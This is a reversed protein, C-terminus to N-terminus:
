GNIAGKSINILSDVHPIGFADECKHCRYCQSNCNKLVDILAVKEKSIIVKRAFSNEGTSGSIDGMSFSYIISDKDAAMAELSSFHVNEIDGETEIGFTANDGYSSYRGSFKLVDIYSFIYDIDKAGKVLLNIGTRPTDSYMGNRWKDCSLSSTTEFYGIEETFSTNMADHESKFPCDPLCGESALMYTKIGREKAVDSIHPLEKWNRALSRDIQVYNYGSENYEICEQATSVKHNVTNKWKMEPFSQQLVGSTMLHVNSITCVRLGRKYFSGIFSVFARLVNRNNILESPHSMQNMTLSIPIGTLEQINFLYDIQEDSAYVEMTNGYRINISDDSYSFLAGFYIDDIEDLFKGDARSLALYFERGKYGREAHGISLRNKYKSNIKESFVEKIIGNTLYDINDDFSKKNFLRQIYQLSSESAAVYKAEPFFLEVDINSWKSPNIFKHIGMDIYKELDKIFARKKDLLDYKNDFFSIEDFVGVLEKGTKQAIDIMSEVYKTYKEDNEMDKSFIGASILIVMHKIDIKKVTSEFVSLEESSLGVYSPIIKIM